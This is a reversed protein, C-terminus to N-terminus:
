PRDSAANPPKSLESEPIFKILYCEIGYRKGIFGSESKAANDLEEKSFKWINDPHEYEFLWRHFIFKLTKM